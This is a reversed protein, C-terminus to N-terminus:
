GTAALGVSAAEEQETTWGAERCFRELDRVQTMLNKDCQGGRILRIGIQQSLAGGRARVRVVLFLRRIRLKELDTIEGDAWAREVEKWVRQVGESVLDANPTIQVM